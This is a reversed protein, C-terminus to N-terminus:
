DIRQCRSPLRLMDFEHHPDWLLKIVSVTGVEDEFWSFLNHTDKCGLEMGWYTANVTRRNPPAAVRCAVYRLLWDPLEEREPGLHARLDGVVGRISFSTDSRMTVLIRM